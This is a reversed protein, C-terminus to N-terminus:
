RFRVHTRGEDKKKRKKKKKKKLFLLEIHLINKVCLCLHKKFNSDLFFSVLFFGLMHHAQRAPPQLLLLLCTLLDLQRLIAPRRRLLLPLRGQAVARAEAGRASVDNRHEAAEAEADGEADPTVQTHGDDAHDIVVGDMLVALDDDFLHGCVGGRYVGGCVLWRM